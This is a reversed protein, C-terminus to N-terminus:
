TRANKLLTKFQSAMLEGNESYDENMSQIWHSPPMPIVSPSPSQAFKAGAYYEKPRVEALYASKKFYIKKMNQNNKFPKKEQKHIRDSPDSNQWSNGGNRQTSTIKTPLNYKSKQRNMGPEEYLCVGRVLQHNPLVTKESRGMKPKLVEKRCPLEGPTAPCPTEPNPNAEETRSADAQVPVEQESKQGNEPSWGSELSPQHQQDQSLSSMQGEPSDGAKKRQEEKPVEQPISGATPLSDDPQAASSHPQSMLGPDDQSLVQSNPMQPMTVELPSFGHSALHGGLVLPERQLVSAITT